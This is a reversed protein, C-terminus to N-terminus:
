SVREVYRGRDVIQGGLKAQCYAAYIRRRDHGLRDLEDFADEFIMRGGRREVVRVFAAVLAPSAGLPRKNPPKDPLAKL